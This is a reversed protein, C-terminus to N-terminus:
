TVIKAWFRLFQSLKPKFFKFSNSSACKSSVFNTITGQCSFTRLYTALGEKKNSKTSNWSCLLFWWFWRSSLIIYQCLSSFDHWLWRKWVLTVCTKCQGNLIFNRFIVVISLLLEGRRNVQNEVSNSLRKWWLSTEKNPQKLRRREIDPLTRLTPSLILSKILLMIIPFFNLDCTM